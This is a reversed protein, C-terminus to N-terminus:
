FQLQGPKGELGGSFPHEWSCVRNFQKTQTCEFGKTHQCPFSRVNWPKTHSSPHMKTPLYAIWQGDAGTVWCLRIHLLVHATDTCFVTQIGQKTEEHIDVQRRKPQYQSPSREIGLLLPCVSAARLGVRAQPNGTSTM